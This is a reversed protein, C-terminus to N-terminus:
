PTVEFAGRMFPHVRCFFTVIEGAQYGNQATVPLDWTIENKAAGLSPIGFGLEQSDFDLDRGVSTRGDAIARSAFATAPM